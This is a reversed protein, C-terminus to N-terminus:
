AASKPAVSQYNDIYEDVRVNGVSPIPMFYHGARLNVNFKTQGKSESLFRGQTDIFAKPLCVAKTVGTVRECLLIVHRFSDTPLGLFWRDPTRESASAIGVTEGLRNKYLAGRYPVLLHGRSALEKVFGARRRDGAERATEGLNASTPRVIATRRAPTEVVAGNSHAVATATSRLGIVTEVEADLAAQRSILEDIERLKAAAELVRDTNRGKAAERIDDLIRNKAALLM